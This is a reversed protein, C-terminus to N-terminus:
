LLLLHHWDCSYKIIIKFLLIHM